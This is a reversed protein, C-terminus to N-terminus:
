TMQKFLLLSAAIYTPINTNINATYMKNNSYNKLIKNQKFKFNISLKRKINLKKMLM